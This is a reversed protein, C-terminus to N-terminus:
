VAESLTRAVIEPDKDLMALLVRAPGDPCRRGQEWNRLTGIPVGIHRAFAARSLGTRK